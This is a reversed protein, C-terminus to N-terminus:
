PDLDIMVYDTPNGSRRSPYWSVMLAHIGMSHALLAEGDDILAEVGDGPDEVDNAPDEDNDVLRHM